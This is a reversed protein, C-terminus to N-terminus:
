LKSKTSCLAPHIGGLPRGFRNLPVPAKWDAILQAEVKHLASEAADWEAQTIPEGADMLSAVLGMAAAQEETAAACRELLLGSTIGHWKSVPQGDRIYDM